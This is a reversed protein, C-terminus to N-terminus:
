AVLEAQDGELYARLAEYSPETAGLSRQGNIYAAARTFNEEKLTGNADFILGDRGLGGLAEARAEESNDGFAADGSVENRPM